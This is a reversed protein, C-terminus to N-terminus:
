KAGRRVRPDSGYRFRPRNGHRGWSRRNRRQQLHCNPIPGAAFGAAQCPDIQQLDRPRLDPIGDQVTRGERRQQGAVNRGVPEDEEIVADGGRRVRSARPKASLSVDLEIRRRRGALFRRRRGAPAFPGPFTSACLVRCSGVRLGHVGPRNSETRRLHQSYALSARIAFGPCPHCAAKTEWGHGPKAM